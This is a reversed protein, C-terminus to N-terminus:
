LARSCDMTGRAGAVHEKLKAADYLTAAGDRDVDCVRLPCASDAVVARSILTVDLDTAKENETWDGCTALLHPGRMAIAGYFAVGNESAVLELEDRSLM